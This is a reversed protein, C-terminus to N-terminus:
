AFEARIAAGHEGIQPVTRTVSRREAFRVPSAPLAVLGTASDAKARRLQPHASLDAVENLSAYATGADSLLAIVQAATLRDFVAAIEGDLAPRNACRQSNGAFRPDTALAPRQLVKACFATWERENQIALVVTRGDGCRYAGYPAITAHHLGARSPAKGAYDFHLLPVTMWEAISDFLSVAIGSGQGTVGRAILAELVAAHANMGCAIDAVSVGVRGPEAVGGTISALGAECQILFDYAKLDRAPGDE